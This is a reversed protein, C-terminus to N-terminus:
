AVRNAVRAAGVEHKSGIRAPRNAIKAAVHADIEEALWGVRGPSIQVRRPFKGEAELRDVQRRSTRIAHDELEPYTLIKKPL